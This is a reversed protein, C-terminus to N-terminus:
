KDYKVKFRSLDPLNKKKRKTEYEYIVKGLNAYFPFGINDYDYKDDNFVGDSNCYVVATLMFEVKKDFDVIYANDLLFGYADGVKNFIRINKPMSNKNDGFMLFKCYSDHFEKPDYKPYTTETPLQSLYQYLFDYDEKSLDFRRQPLVAEPFMVAKLIDQQEDLPFFNKTTFDFPENILKDGKMYGIGKKIPTTPIYNKSKNTVAVQSYINSVPYVEMRDIENAYAPLKPTTSGGGFSIAPTIKHQEISYPTSLRHIVRTNRYGKSFLKDNFDQQGMFEYLRNFADNDSVLLIKKAFHGISAKGTASTSDGSVSEHGEFATSITMPTNKDLDKIKLQNLKELALLVAPFKVTSAPYFYRNSDFNYSLTRFSPRNQADRDIQTYLIQVEYKDSALVVDFKGSKKLIKELEKDTKQANISLSIISSLIMLCNTFIRKM